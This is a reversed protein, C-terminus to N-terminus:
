VWALEFTDNFEIKILNCTEHGYFDKTCWWWRLIDQETFEVLSINLLWWEYFKSCIYEENHESSCGQLTWDGFDPVVSTQCSTCRSTFISYNKNRKM